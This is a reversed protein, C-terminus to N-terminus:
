EPPGDADTVVRWAMGKRNSVPELIRLGDSDFRMGKRKMLAESRADLEIPYCRRPIDGGLGINNGTAVRTTLQQVSITQSVGLRRGHWHTLTIVSALSPHDIKQDVNDLNIFIAGESLLTTIRKELEEDKTPTLLTSEHGTCIIAIIAALLSKGTGASPARILALPVNGDIYERILPTLMLAFTNARAAKDAFPFEALVDDMHSVADQTMKANTKSKVNPMQCTGKPAYYLGSGHDYGPKTLFTANPLLVPTEVVGKLTSFPWHDPAAGAMAHLMTKPPPVHFENDKLTKKCHAACAVENSLERECLAQGM